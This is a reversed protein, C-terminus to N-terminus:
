VKLQLWDANYNIVKSLVQKTGHPVETLSDISVKDLYLKKRIDTANLGYQDDIRVIECGPIRLFLDNSKKTFVDKDCVVAKYKRAPKDLSANIINLVYEIQSVWADDSPNDHVAHISYLGTYDVLSKMLMDTRQLYTFPNRADQKGDASGIFIATYGGNAEEIARRILDLHGNHLPQFRGVVFTISKSM